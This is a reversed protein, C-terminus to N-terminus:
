VATQELASQGEVFCHVGDEDFDQTEGEVIEVRDSHPVAATRNNFELQFILRINIVQSADFVKVQFPSSGVSIFDVNDRALDKADTADLRNWM